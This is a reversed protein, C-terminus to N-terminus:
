FFRLYDTKEFYRKSIAYNFAQMILKSPFFLILISIMISVTFSLDTKLNRNLAYKLKFSTGNLILKRTKNRISDPTNRVQVLPMNINGCKHASVIRLWYEYDEGVDININYIGIKKIISKKFIITSHAFTDYKLINRKIDEYTSPYKRYGIINNNSDIMITDSGIFDYDYKDMFMLQTKFRRSISIDDSDQRAILVGESLLIGKVLSRQFGERVKNSIFKIRPDKLSRVYDDIVSENGDSIIIIEINKYTQDLLSDISQKFYSYKPFYIPMIVSILEETM